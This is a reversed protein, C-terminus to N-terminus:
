HTPVTVGVTGAGVTDVTSCWRSSWVCLVGPLSMSMKDVDLRFFLGFIRLNRRICTRYCLSFFTPGINLSPQNPEVHYGFIPFIDEPKLTYARDEGPIKYKGSRTQYDGSSM